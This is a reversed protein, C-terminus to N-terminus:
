RWAKVLRKLHPRLIDLVERAVRAAMADTKIGKDGVVSNTIVVRDFLVGVRDAVVVHVRARGIPITDNSISFSKIEFAVGLDTGAAKIATVASDAHLLKAEVQKPERRQRAAWPSIQAVFANKLADQSASASSTSVGVLLPRMAPEPQQVV